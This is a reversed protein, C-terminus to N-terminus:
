RGRCMGSQSQQVGSVDRAAAGGAPGHRGWATADPKANYIAREFAVPRHPSPRHDLRIGCITAIENARFLPYEAKLARILDRVAGPLTRHKEESPAFFSAMGEKAFRAAHRYLTRQAVGTEKAREGPSYGFLVVPRLVEYTLQEPFDILLSLQQWEDTPQIRRRKSM